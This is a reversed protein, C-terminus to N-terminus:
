EFYHVNWLSQFPHVPVTEALM